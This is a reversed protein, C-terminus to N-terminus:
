ETEVKFLGMQEESSSILKWGTPEKTDDKSAYIKWRYTNGSELAQSATGDSNYIISTGDSIIVNKV